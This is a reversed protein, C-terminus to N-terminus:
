DERGTFQTCLCRYCRGDGWAVGDRHELRAHGCHCRDTFHCPLLDPLTLSHQSPM